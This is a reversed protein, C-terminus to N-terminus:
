STSYHDFIGHDTRQQRQIPASMSEAISREKKQTHRAPLNIASRTISEYLSTTFCIAGGLVAAPISGTEVLPVNLSFLPGPTLLSGVLAVIWLALVGFLGGLLTRLWCKCLYSNRSLFSYAPVFVVLWPLFLPLGIICLMLALESAVTIKFGLSFLFEWGTNNLGVISLITLSLWLSFLGALLSIIVGTIQKACTSDPESQGAYAITSEDKRRNLMGPKSGYQM